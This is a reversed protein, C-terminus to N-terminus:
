KHKLKANRWSVIGNIVVVCDATEVSMNQQAKAIERTTASIIWYKCSIHAFLDGVIFPRHAAM